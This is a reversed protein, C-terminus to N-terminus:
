FVDEVVKYLETYRANAKRLERELRKIGSIIDLRNIIESPEIPKLLFADAGLNLSDVADNLSAAGSMMITGIVPDIEKLKKLLHIGDFDPLRIDLIVAEFATDSELITLAETGSLAAKVLFGAKRILISLSRALDIDDEVLLIRMKDKPKRYEMKENCGNSCKWYGKPLRLRNHKDVEWINGCQRCKLIFQTPDILDLEEKEIKNRVHRSIKIESM